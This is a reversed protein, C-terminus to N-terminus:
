LSVPVSKLTVQLFGDDEETTDEEAAALDEISTAEDGLRLGELNGEEPEDEERAEKADGDEVEEKAEEEREEEKEEGKVEIEKTKVDETDLLPDNTVTVAKSVAWDVTTDTLTKSKPAGQSTFFSSQQFSLFLIGAMVCALIVLRRSQAVIGDSRGRLRVSPQRGYM